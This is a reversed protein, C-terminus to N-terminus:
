YDVEATTPYGDYVPVYITDFVYVIKVSESVKQLQRTKMALMETKMRVIHEKTVSDAMSYIESASDLSHNSKSIIEDAQTLASSEETAQYSSCGALFLLASLLVIRM